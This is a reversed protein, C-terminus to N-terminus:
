VRLGSPVNVPLHILPPPTAWAVRFFSSHRCSDVGADLHRREAMQEVEGQVEVEFRSCRVEFGPTLLGLIAKVSRQTITLTGVV